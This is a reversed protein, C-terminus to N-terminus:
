DSSTAQPITLRTSSPLFMAAVERGKFHDGMKQFYADPDEVADGLMMCQLIPRTTKHRKLPGQSLIALYQDVSVGDQSDIAQKMKKLAVGPVVLDTALFRDKLSTEEEQQDDTVCAFSEGLEIEAGKTAGSEPMKGEGSALPVIAQSPDGGPPEGTSSGAAVTATKKLIEEPPKMTEVYASQKLNNDSTKDSHPLEAVSTGAVLPAPQQVIEKKVKVIEQKVKVIEEKEPVEKKVHAEELQSPLAQTRFNELDKELEEQGRTSPGYVPLKQCTRELEINKKSAYSTM